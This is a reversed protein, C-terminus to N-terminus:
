CRWSRTSTPPRTPPSSAPSSRTTRRREGGPAPPARARRPRAQARQQGRRALHGVDRRGRRRQLRARRAPGAGRAPAAAAGAARDRVGAVAVRAARLAGGARGAARGVGGDVRRPVAAAVRGRRAAVAGAADPGAREVGAAAAAGRRAARQPLPEDRDPLAVDAAVRPGRVRRDRALGDAARGAARGRRGPLVGVHPLLARAARAPATRDAGRVRRRRRAQARTLLDLTM